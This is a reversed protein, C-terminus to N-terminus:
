KAGRAISFISDTQITGLGKTGTLHPIAAAEEAARRKNRFAETLKENRGEEYAEKRVRELTADYSLMRIAMQLIEPNFTQASAARGFDAILQKAKAFTESDIGAGLRYAEEVASLGEESNEPQIDRADKGEEDSLDPKNSSESKDSSEPQESLESLKPQESLESLEAHESLESLEAHEEEKKLNKKKFM